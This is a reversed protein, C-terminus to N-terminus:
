NLVIKDNTTGRDSILRLIYIGKSLSSLDLQKDISGQITGFDQDVMTEGNLSLILLKVSQSENMTFRINLLGDTPNPFVSLDEFAKQDNIGTTVAVYSADWGAGRITKNSTWMVMAKGSNITIPSIPDSTHDGSFTNLLSPPNVAINYVQVKDNVPETNFNTFTLTISTATPPEIMWRCTTGNRYQFQGSEDSFADHGATLTTSSNCFTVPIANYTLLFGNATTSSNSVFTVLMQPGTSTPTATPLNPGSFTGLVTSSTTPGDYVTLVDAPDTNFRDFGLRITSVSDDPAILWSCNANNQYDAVPGSGDEITGFDDATVNTIGSCYTPYQAPDPTIHVVAEQSSNFNYGDPDLNTLYYYGNASGSWGWNFHYYDTAQYGDCVWSHGGDPGSGSYQIIEAVNLDGQLLNNWNTTSYNLQKVYQTTTSYRFYNILATAVDSTYAGSSCQGDANYNMNVSIGTHSMLTALPLCESSPEDNMGNWDYTTGAFNACLEGYHNSYYCHSGVGTIPWRWYYMVQSMATAICGTTVHDGFASCTSDYPVDENYPFGQDWLSTTLPAVDEISGPSKPMQDFDKNNLHQWMATAKTDAQINNEINYAIEKKRENMWYAFGEPQNSPSYSSEFSFGIVPYCIDDASIIVFGKDNINFVYYVDHNNYQEVFEKTIAITQYPVADHRNAQEFYTNKAILRADTIEVKRAFATTSIGILLLFFLIRNKKM